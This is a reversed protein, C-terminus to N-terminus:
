IESSSIKISPGMTTAVFISKIYNGKISAPKANKISNLVANANTLLKEAGFSVKGIALHVIGSSDVRYEVRGAKAESVAKAVDTTVTGSKPSPMLGKPGLIRAYKGLKPMMNPTAILTDFEIISKDIKQLLEDGMAIDAGAKKASAIDDAEAFVAVIVKKGTGSPLVLNARINQDAQRPDVGLRVHLEVTSDFKTTSTKTALALAEGLKYEKGTEITKAVKRFNKGRREILSRIKPPKAKPQEALEETHTKREEKAVKAEAEKIAKPSRKGAKALKIDEEAIEQEAEVIAEAIIETEVLEKIKKSTQNVAAKEATKVDAKAAKKAVAPKKVTKAVPKTVKTAVKKPTAKKTSVKKAEAM